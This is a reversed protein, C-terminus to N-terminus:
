ENRITFAQVDEVWEVDTANLKRLLDLFSGRGPTVKGATQVTGGGYNTEALSMVSVQLPTKSAIVRVIEASVSAGPLLKAIARIGKERAVQNPYTWTEGARIHNDQAYGNPFILSGNLNMDVGYVYLYADRSSTVVILAEDGDIYSSRNLRLNVKFDKDKRSPESVICTQITAQFRCGVCGGENILGAHVVREHIARGYQTVRLLHETLSAEGRLSNEHQFDLFQHELHVDLLRNMAKSRAEMVAQAFAQHKTDQDGFVVTATSEVWTCHDPDMDLIKVDLSGATEATQRGEAPQRMDTQLGHQMTTCSQLSIQLAILLGLVRHLPDPM